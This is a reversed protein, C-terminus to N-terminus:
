NAKMKERVSRALKEIEESKKIVEMSMVNENTKDVYSKLETALMLLKDADHKLDEQRKLNAKKAMEKLLKQHQEDEPTPKQNQRIGPIQMSSTSADAQGSPQTWSLPALCSFFLLACAIWPAKLAEM